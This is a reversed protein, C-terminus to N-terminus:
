RADDAASPQRDGAPGPPPLDDFRIPGADLDVVLHDSVDGVQDVQIFMEDFWWVGDLRKFRDTYRGGAIPQLPTRDTAQFVMFYSEAIATGEEEDIDITLNTILHRTRPTGDGHVKNVSAWLNGVEAAGRSVEDSTSARVRGHAFLEGLDAWRALDVCRAYRYILREIDRHSEWTM